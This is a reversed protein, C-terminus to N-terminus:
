RHHGRPVTVTNIVTSSASSAANGASGAAAAVGGLAAANVLGSVIQGGQGQSSKHFVVKEDPTVYSCNTFDADLYFLVVTTPGTCKELIDFGGNTGFPSRVETHKTVLFQDTTGPVKYPSVCGVLLMLAVAFFTPKAIARTLAMLGKQLDTAGISVWRQDCDATAKLREVLAGLEAGKVKVENMAAIEVENLERYGRIERHQNEM